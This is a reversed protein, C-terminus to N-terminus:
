TQGLTQKSLGKLDSKDVQPLEPRRDIQFKPKKSHDIILRIKGFLTHKKEYFNPVFKSHVNINSTKVLNMCRIKGLDKAFIPPPANYKQKCWM